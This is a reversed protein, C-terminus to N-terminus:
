DCSIGLKIIQKRYLHQAVDSRLCTYLALKCSTHCETYIQTTKCVNIVAANLYLGHLYVGTLALLSYKHEMCLKFNERSTSEQHFSQLFVWLLGM